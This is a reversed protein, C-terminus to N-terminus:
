TFAHSDHNMQEVITYKMGDQKTVPSLLWQNFKRMAGRECRDIAQGGGTGSGAAGGTHMVGDAHNGGSPFPIGPHTRNWRAQAAAEGITHNVHHRSQSNNFRTSGGVGSFRDDYPNERGHNNWFTNGKDNGKNGKGHGGKTEVYKQEQEQNFVEQSKDNEFDNTVVGAHADYEEVLTSEEISYFGGVVYVSLGIFFITLAVGFVRNQTRLRPRLATMPDPLPYESSSMAELDPEKESRTKMEIGGEM